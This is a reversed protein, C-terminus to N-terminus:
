FMAPQKKSSTRQRLGLESLSSSTLPVADGVGMRQHEDSDPDGDDDWDHKGILRMGIPNEAALRSVEVSIAADRV